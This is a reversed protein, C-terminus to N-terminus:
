GTALAARLADRLAADPANFFITALRGTRDVLYLQASHDVVYAGEPGSPPQKVFSASFSRAVPRVRAPDGTLGVFRPEIADLLGKMAAPTDREGDVSVMVVQVAALAPDAAMLNRLRLLTTPCVDPCNLFGFFVLSVRGRFAESSRFPRGKQDLLTFPALTRPQALRLARSDRPGETAVGPAAHGPAVYLALACLAFAYRLLWAVRGGARRRARQLPHRSSPDHQTAVNVRETQTCVTPPCRSSARM